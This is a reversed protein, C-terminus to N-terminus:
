TNCSRYISIKGKKPLIGENEFIESPIDMSIENFEFLNSLSGIDMRTGDPDQDDNDYEFTLGDEDLDPNGANICPSIQQLNYDGYRDVFL